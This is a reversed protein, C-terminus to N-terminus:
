NVCRADYLYRRDIGLIKCDVVTYGCALAVVFLRTAGQVVLYSAIRTDCEETFDVAGIVLSPVGVCISFFIVFAATIQTQTHGEFYAKTNEDTEGTGGEVSPQTGEARPYEKAPETASASSTEPLSSDQTTSM